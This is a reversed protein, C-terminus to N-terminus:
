LHTGVPFYHSRSCYFNHELIYVTKVATNLPFMSLLIDKINYHRANFQIEPLAAIKYTQTFLESRKAIFIKINENNKLAFMSNNGRLVSYMIMIDHKQVRQRQQKTGVM